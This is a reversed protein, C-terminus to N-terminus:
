SESGGYQRFYLGCVLLVRECLIMVALMFFVVYSGFSELGYAILNIMLYTFIESSILVMVANGALANKGRLILSLIIGIVLAAIFLVVDTVSRSMMSLKFFFTFGSISVGYFSIFPVIMFLLLTGGFLATRIKPDIVPEQDRPLKKLAIVVAALYPLVFVGFLGCVACILATVSDKQRFVGYAPALAIIAYLVFVLLTFLPPFSIAESYYM